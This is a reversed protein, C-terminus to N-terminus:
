SFSESFLFVSCRAAERRKDMLSACLEKCQVWVASLREEASTCNRLGGYSIEVM